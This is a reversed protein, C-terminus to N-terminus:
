FQVFLSSPTDPAPLSGQGVEQIKAARIELRREAERAIKNQKEEDNGYISEWDITKEGYRECNMFHKFSEEKIECMICLNDEHKWNECAKIGFTGSRIKFITKSQKTKRNEALYNQMKLYRYTIHKTKTKKQNEEVLKEFAVKQLQENTKFFM